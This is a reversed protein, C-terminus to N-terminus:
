LMTQLEILYYVIPATIIVSDFRDLIGGHGPILTGYDKIDYNRKIASAALDGIQSVVSDAAGLLAISVVPNAFVSIHSRFIVAFLAGLAAAGIVGGVAGEVSKKPSLVPALKHRGLLMGSCYAMTDSGWSAIFVLWVLYAGDGALRIRYIYSIMVTVYLVGFVAQALRDAKYKPFTFVYVALLALFGALLLVALWEGRGNGLLLVYYLLSVIAGTIALPSGKLDFVRYLEWLGTLSVATLVGWLLPGGVALSAITIAMLIVSSRLRIWFTQMKSSSM